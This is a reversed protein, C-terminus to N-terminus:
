TLTQACPKACCSHLVLPLSYRTDQQHEDGAL